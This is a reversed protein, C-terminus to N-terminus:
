ELSYDQQSSGCKSRGESNEVSNKRENKIMMRRSAIISIDPYNKTLVEWDDLQIVEQGHEAAFDLAAEKLNDVSNLHAWAMLTLANEVRFCTLLFAVCEEKLDGIDYKDAAMFLSQATEETLSMRTRGSYIYHLLEKFIDLQIDEIDVRGTEQEKMSSHQFMAAFVPSRATLILSHSGVSEDGDFCFQVDCKTQQVFLDALQNIVNKEGLHFTKFKIWIFCSLQLRRDSIDVYSQYGNSLSRPNPHQYSVAFKESKWENANATSEKLHIKDSGNVSAWCDRPRHSNDKATINNEGESNCISEIALCMWINPQWKGHSVSDIVTKYECSIKLCTPFFYDLRFTKEARGVGCRIESDWEIYVLGSDVEEIKISM